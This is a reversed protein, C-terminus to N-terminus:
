TYIESVWEKQERALQTLYLIDHHSQVKARHNIITTISQVISKMIIVARAMTPVQQFRVMRIQQRTPLKQVEPRMMSVAWVMRMIMNLIQISVIQVIEM